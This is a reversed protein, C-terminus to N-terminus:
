SSAHNEGTGIGAVRSNWVTRGNAAHDKAPAKATQKRKEVAEIERGMPCDCYQETARPRQGEIRELIRGTNGCRECRPAEVPASLARAVRVTSDMESASRTKAPFKKVLWKLGAMPSRFGSLPNERALKLLGEPTIRRLEMQEKVWCQDQFGM